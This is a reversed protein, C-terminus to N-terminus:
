CSQCFMEAMAGAASGEFIWILDHFPVNTRGSSISTSELMMKLRVVCIV